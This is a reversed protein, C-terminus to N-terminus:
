RLFATVEQGTQTSESAGPPPLMPVPALDTIPMLALEDKPSRALAGLYRVADLRLEPAPESKAIAKLKEVAPRTANRALSRVVFKAEGAM